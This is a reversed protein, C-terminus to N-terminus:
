SRQKDEKSSSYILYIFGLFTLLNLLNTLPFTISLHFGYRFISILNSCYLFLYLAGISNNFCYLKKSIELTVVLLIPYIAILYKNGYVVILQSVWSSGYGLPSGPFIENKARDIIAATAFEENLFLSKLGLPIFDCLMNLFNSWPELKENSNLVFDITQQTNFAEGFIFIMFGLPNQLISAGENGYYRVLTMFILIVFIGIYFKKNPSRNNKLIYYFVFLILFSFSWIRGQSLIEICLYPTSLLLPYSGKTKIIYYSSLLIHLSYIYNLKFTAAVETFLEFLDVRSMGNQYASLFKLFALSGFFCCVQLVLKIIKFQNKSELLKINFHKKAGQKIKSNSLIIFFTFGVVQSLSLFVADDLSTNPFYFIEVGSSILALTALSPVISYNFFLFVTLYRAFDFFILYERVKM